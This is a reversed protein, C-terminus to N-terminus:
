SGTEIVSFTRTGNGNNVMTMTGIVSNNAVVQRVWTKSSTDHSDTIKAMTSPTTVGALTMNAMGYSLNYKTTLYDIFASEMAATSETNTFTQTQEM